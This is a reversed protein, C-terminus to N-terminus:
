LEDYFSCYSDIYSGDERAKRDYPLIPLGLSKCHDTIEPAIRDAALIVGDAYQVALKALNIGTPKELVAM